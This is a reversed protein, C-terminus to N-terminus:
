QRDPVGKPRLRVRRLDLTVHSDRFKEARELTFRTASRQSTTTAWRHADRVILYKGPVVQGDKETDQEKLVYLTSNM